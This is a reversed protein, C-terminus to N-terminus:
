EVDSDLMASWLRQIKKAKPLVGAMVAVRDGARRVHFGDGEQVFAAFEKADEESDWITNLLVIEADGRSWLEWRDGDWGQAADNTWDGLIAMPNSIDISTDSGTMLAINIEGLVGSGRLTWKGGLISGAGDIRVPRPDDRQEPEWYKEPHIIQESSLPGSDFARNVDQEPFTGTMGLMNGRLLFNAGLVICKEGDVFILNPHFFSWSFKKLSFQHLM